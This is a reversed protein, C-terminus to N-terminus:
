RPVKRERPWVRKAKGAASRVYGNPYVNAYAGEGKLKWIEHSTLLRTDDHSVDWHFGPTLATGRILLPPLAHYSRPDAAAWRRDNDDRRAGQHRHHRDFDTRSSSDNLEIWEVETDFVHFPLARPDAHGECVTAAAWEAFDDFFRGVDPKGRVLGCFAKYRIYSPLEILDRRRAPTTSPDRRVFSARFTAICVRDQHAAAYVDNADKPTLLWLPREREDAGSVRDERSRRVKVLMKLENARSEVAEAHQRIERSEQGDPRIIFITAVHRSQDAPKRRSRSGM